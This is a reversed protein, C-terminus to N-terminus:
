FHDSLSGRRQPADRGFTAQLSHAGAIEQWQSPNKGQPLQWRSTEPASKKTCEASCENQLIGRSFQSTLKPDLSKAPVINRLQQYQVLSEAALVVGSNVAVDEVGFTPGATWVVQHNLWNVRSHYTPCHCGVLNWNLMWPMCFSLADKHLGVGLGGDVQGHQVINRHSLGLSSIHGFGNQIGVLIVETKNREVNGKYLIRIERRVFSRREHVLSFGEWWSLIGGEDM